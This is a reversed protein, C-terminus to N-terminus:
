QVRIINPKILERHAPAPLGNRHRFLTLPALSFHMKIILVPSRAFLRFEAEAVFHFDKNISFSIIHLTCMDKDDIANENERQQACLPNEESCTCANPFALAFSFLGYNSLCVTAELAEHSQTESLRTFTHAIRM